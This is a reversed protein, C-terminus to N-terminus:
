GKGGTAQQPEAPPEQPTRSGENTKDMNRSVRCGKPKNTHCGERVGDARGQDLTCSIARSTQQHNAGQRIQYSTAWWSCPRRIRGANGTERIGDPVRESSIFSAKRHSRGPLLGAAQDMFVIVAAAGRHAKLSSFSSGHEGRDRGARGAPDAAGSQLISKM